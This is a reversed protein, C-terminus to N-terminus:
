LLLDEMKIIKLMADALHTGGDGFLTERVLPRRLKESIAARQVHDTALEIGRAVFEDNSRVVLEPAGVSRLIMADFREHAHHGERALVPIGLLLADVVSNTGGFPFTSLYLHCQKMHGLYENYQTREYILATPIWERIERASQFLNIGLMNIFFHFQIMQGKEKAGQEIQKCAAMFPANLKCLMASVCVHLVEPSEATQIMPEPFDADPRVQYRVAGHPMEIVTENVADPDDYTGEEVIVYDIAPSMSSAPHGLMMVQIPALRMTSIAVWWLAMGISPYFIIDPAIKNIQDVVESLVVRDASLMVWEDFEERSVEDSSMPQGIGILHFHPRLQRIYPAYCRFMAHLSTFWEVPILMVPKARRKRQKLDPEKAGGALMMRKVLKNLTKKIEHKDQRTGYSCYMYTDSFTPLMQDTLKCDEFIKHLGLLEEKRDHATQSVTLMHTLMGLYIPLTAQPSARFFPEYDLKFGSRMSHVLLFKLIAYSDKFVIKNTDKEKPDETVHPLLHDANEFHSARLALDMTAHEAAVAEMGEPSLNFKPDALLAIVCSIFRTYLVRKLVPDNRYGIFEGGQKFRRLSQVLLACAKEYDRAYVASEFEELSVNQIEETPHPVVKLKKSM